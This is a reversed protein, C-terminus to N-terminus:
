DIDSIESETDTLKINRNKFLDIFLTLLSPEKIKQQIRQKFIKEEASISIDEEDNAPTGNKHNYYALLKMYDAPIGNLSEPSQCGKNHIYIAKNLINLESKLHFEIYKSYRIQTLQKWLITYAIPYIILTILTSKLITKDISFINRQAWLSLNTSFFLIFAIVTLVIYFLRLKNHSTIIALVTTLFFSLILETKFYFSESISVNREYGMYVLLISNIIFIIWGALRIKKHKNTLSADAITKISDKIIQAEETDKENLFTKLSPSFDAQWLKIGIKNSICLSTYFAFSVEFLSSFDSLM